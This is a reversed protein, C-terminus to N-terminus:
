AIEFCNIWIITGLICATCMGFLDLISKFMSGFYDPACLKYSIVLFYSMQHLQPKQMHEQQTYDDTHISYSHQLIFNVGEKRVTWVSSSNGSIYVTVMEKNPFSKNEIPEASKEPLERCIKRRSRCHNLSRSKVRRILM